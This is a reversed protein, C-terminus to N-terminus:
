KKQKNKDSFLISMEATIKTHTKWGCRFDIKQSWIKDMKRSHTSVFLQIRVFYYCFLSYSFQTCQVDPSRKAYVVCHCISIFFPKNKKKTMTKDWSHLSVSSVNSICLESHMKIQHLSLSFYIPSSSSRPRSATLMAFSLNM